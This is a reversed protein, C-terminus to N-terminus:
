IAENVLKLLENKITAEANTVLKSTRGRWTEYGGYEFEHEPPVYGANANALCITFYNKVPSNKKLWLGTEAFIEAGLGGIIGNGIKLAQVPFQLTDPLDNLLVQERAYLQKLTENNITMQEYNSEAVIKKTKQLEDADPKRLKITLESYKVLLSPANDWQIHQVELCVKEAIDTGILESKKFNGKPYREPNLFDWININGSTGNSMMGVFDDGVNLKEKIQNAFVGFYDASITGNDWDGVYHLSYNAILSIWKDDTGKVALFGVQPDTVGNGYDILHEGGFPNTKVSDAAGSVPNGAVYGEKMKYRRCLVHEPVDVSGWGIKAPRINQKALVVSRIILAPLKRMYQLDAAGLYVSAVSGAAHTHTSSILINRPDIGTQKQIEAKIEDLFDKPMVCIDVVVIAALVGNQQVVLARAHLPDHIYQAYHAIFDGNIFTGLPPTIDVKAAGALFQKTDM